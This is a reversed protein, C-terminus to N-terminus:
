LSKITLISRQPIAMDGCGQQDVHPQDSASLHPVVVIYHDDQHVLWGVSQCRLPKLNEIGEIRQWNPSCGFSDVWEVLVLEPDTVEEKQGTTANACEGGCKKSGTLIQPGKSGQIGQNGSTKLNTREKGHYVEGKHKTKKAMTMSLRLKVFPISRSVIGKDNNCGM